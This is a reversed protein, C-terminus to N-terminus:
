FTMASPSMLLHGHGPIDKEPVSPRYLIQQGMQDTLEPARGIALQKHPLQSHGVHGRDKRTYSMAQGTQRQLNHAAHVGVRAPVTGRHAHLTRALLDDLVQGVHHPLEEDLEVFGCAEFGGPDDEVTITNRLPLEWLHPAGLDRNALPAAGAGM